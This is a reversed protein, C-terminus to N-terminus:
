HLAKEPEVKPPMDGVRPVHALHMEQKCGHLHYRIVSPYEEHYRYLSEWVGLDNEQLEISCELVGVRERHGQMGM